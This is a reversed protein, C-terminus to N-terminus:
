GWHVVLDEKMFNCINKRRAIPIKHRVVPHERTHHLLINTYLPISNGSPCYLMGRLFCLLYSLYASTVRENSLSAKENAVDSQRKCIGSERKVVDSEGRSCPWKLGAFGIHFCCVCSIMTSHHICAMATADHAPGGQDRLLLTSDVHVPFRDVRINAENCNRGSCSWKSGAVDFRRGASLRWLSAPLRFPFFSVDCPSWPHTTKRTLSGGKQDGKPRRLVNLFM